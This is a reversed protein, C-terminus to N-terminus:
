VRDRDRMDDVHRQADIKWIGGGIGKYEELMLKIQSEQDVKKSIEQFVHKLDNMELHDIEKLIYQLRTM